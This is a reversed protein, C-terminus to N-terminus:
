IKIDIGCYPRNWEDEKPFNYIDAFGGTAKKTVDAAEEMAGAAEKAADITKELETTEEAEEELCDTLEKLEEATEKGSETMEELADTPKELEDVTEELMEELVGEDKDTGLAEEVQEKRREEPTKPEMKEAAEAIKEGQEEAEDLIHHMQEFNYATKVASIEDEYNHFMELKRAIDEVTDCEMSKLNEKQKEWFAIQSDAKQQREAKEQTSKLATNQLVPLKGAFISGSKYSIGGTMSLNM